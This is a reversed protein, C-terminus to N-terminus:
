SPIHAVKYVRFMPLVSLDIHPRTEFQGLVIYSYLHLKSASDDGKQEVM